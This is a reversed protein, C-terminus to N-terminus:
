HCGKQKCKYKMNPDTPDWKHWSPLKYASPKKLPEYGSKSYIVVKTKLKCNDYIWKADGATVRVCGHSAPQGLKNYASVSLTQNNNQSNYFVSHFLIGGHIRTCWQGWCPGMLEHWRYKAPTYFTGTPTYSSLAGASCIMSRYPVYYKGDMYYATVMSKTKNVYLIYNDKKGVIKELNQIQNGNADYYLKLTKGYMISNKDTVKKYKVTIKVQNTKGNRDFGSWYVNKGSKRYARVTYTYKVGNKVNKDTYSVTGNGTLTAIRTWDKAGAAKRYVRYGQAGSVKNWNIKLYLGSPSVSKLAPTTVSTTVKPGDTRYYGDQVKSGKKWYAKVTYQYNTGLAANKDFYSSTGSSVIALGKWTGSGTRRYIKYGSAGSVKSWTVKNTNYSVPSVKSIKPAVPKLTVLVRDSYGSTDHASYAIVKFAFKHGWYKYASSSSLQYSYSTNDKVTAVRSWKGGYQKYVYYGDAGPVKNWTVNISRSSSVTVSKMKPDSLQTKASIGTHDFESRTNTERDVARVTYAYTVGPQANSDTYSLSAVPTKTVRKWSSGATKRYLLYGDAHPVESWSVVIKNHASVKAGTLVPADLMVYVANSSVADSCVHDDGEAYARVKYTYATESLVVNSLICSSSDQGSVTLLEKGAADFIKYYGAGEVPTWTVTVQRYGTKKAIVKTINELPFAKGQLGVGDQSANAENGVYTEVKYLYSIGAKATEDIYQYVGSSIEQLNESDAQLCRIPAGWAENGSSKRFILYGDAENKKEFQIEFTHVGKAEVRKMEPSEPTWSEMITSSSSRYKGDSGAAFVTVSGAIILISVLILALIVHKRVYTKM